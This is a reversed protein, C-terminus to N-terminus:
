ILEANLYRQLGANQVLKMYVGSDLVLCLKRVTKLPLGVSLFICYDLLSASSTNAYSVYMKHTTQLVNYSSTWGQSPVFNPGFQLNYKKKREDVTSGFRELVFKWKTDYLSM